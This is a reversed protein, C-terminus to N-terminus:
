NPSSTLLWSPFVVGFHRRFLFDPHWCYVSCIFWTSWVLKSGRVREKKPRSVSRLRSLSACRVRSNVCCSKQVRWFVPERSLCKAGERGRARRRKDREDDRQRRFRRVEQPCSLRPRDFWRLERKGMVASGRRSLKANRQHKQLLAWYSWYTGFGRLAVITLSGRHQGPLLDIMSPRQQTKPIGSVFTELAHSNSSPTTHSKFHFTNNSYVITAALFNEEKV